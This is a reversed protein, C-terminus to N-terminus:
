PLQFLIHWVAFPSCQVTILFFTVEGVGERQEGQVGILDKWELVRDRAWSKLGWKLGRYSSKKKRINVVKQGRPQYSSVRDSEM